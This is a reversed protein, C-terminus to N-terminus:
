RASKRAPMIRTSTTPASTRRRPKPIPGRRTAIARRMAALCSAAFAGAGAGVIAGDREVVYYTRDDIIQGDVAFLTGISARLEADAYERGMLGLVSRSILTEIAEVDGRRALRLNM